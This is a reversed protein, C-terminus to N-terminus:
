RSAERRRRVGQLVIAATGGGVSVIGIGALFWFNVALDAAAGPWDPVIRSPDRSDYLVGVTEGVFFRGPSSVSYATTRTRAAHGDITTAIVPSYHEQSGRRTHSTEHVVEAVTGTASVGHARVSTDRVFAPGSGDLGIVSVILGIAACLIAAASLSAGGM